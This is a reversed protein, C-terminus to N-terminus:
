VLCVRCIVCMLLEAPQPCLSSSILGAVEDKRKNGEWSKMVFSVTFGSINEHHVKTGGGGAQGLPGTLALNMM